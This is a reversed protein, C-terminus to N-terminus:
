ATEEYTGGGTAPATATRLPLTVEALVGSGPADRIELRAADGHLAELRRRTNEIGVGAGARPPTGLGPGDNRVEIRLREDETSDDLM